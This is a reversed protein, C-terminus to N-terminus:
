DSSASAQMMGDRIQQTIDGVHGPGHPLFVTTNKSGAGIEKMTDFYQTILVLDMVDKSTTGPVNNSFQLVSERLGDTIAQRQRAIGRGNLYKAEAEGEAKKVQLIKEAEAKDFAAMRMRQAANIENMARRVTSDPIIDVILTQEISYGYAGMVKELEESVAKAIDDKQEFVDDLIMRPVCARVVDFVYSQIQEKPNQLEYFADDANQRVVRYQISCVVSVFVNDKTKTDCRVDLSQVRLSLRGALWEGTFPNLCHLGPQALGSFKGWKEIVGVTSQAVCILCGFGEM